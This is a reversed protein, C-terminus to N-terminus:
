FAHVEPQPHAAWDDFNRETSSRVIDLMHNVSTRQASPPSGAFLAPSLSASAARTAQRQPSKYQYSSLLTAGPKPRPSAQSSALPSDARPMSAAQHQPFFAHASSSTSSANRKGRHLLDFDILPRPSSFADGPPSVVSGPGFLRHQMSPPAGGAEREESRPFPISSANSDARGSARPFFSPLNPQPSAPLSAHGGVPAAARPLSASASARRQPPPSAPGGPFLEKRAFIRGLASTDPLLSVNDDLSPWPLPRALDEDGGAARARPAAEPRDFGPRPRAPEDRRHYEAVGLGFADSSEGATVTIAGAAAESGAPRQQQLWGDEFPRAAAPSPPSGYVHPSDILRRAQQQQQQQQLQQEQQQQQQQQQQRQQQQQQQQLQQQQQQQQQRQQQQQQQQLQQQQELHQWGAAARPQADAAGDDSRRRAWRPLDGLPRGGPSPEDEHERRPGGSPRESAVHRQDRDPSRGDEFSDTLGPGSRLPEEEPPRYADGEEACEAVARSDKQSLFPPDSSRWALLEDDDVDSLPTGTYSRPPRGGAASPAAPPPEFLDPEFRDDFFPLDPIHQRPPPKPPSTTLHWRPVPVPQPPPPPPTAKLARAAQTRPKPASRLAPAPQAQPAPQATTLSRTRTPKALRQMRPSLTAPSSTHGRRFAQQQQQIQPPPQQQQQPQVHPTNTTNRLAARGRADELPKTASGSGSCKAAAAPKERDRPGDRAKLKPQGAEPPVGARAAQAELIAELKDRLAATLGYTQAFNAALVRVDDGQHIGIRGCRGAGLNVDVYLLPKQRERKETEFKFPKVETPAGTTAPRAALDHDSSTRLFNEDFRKSVAQRGKVMRQVARNFGKAQQVPTQYIGHPVDHVQPHFTCEDIEKDASPVFTDAGRSRAPKVPVDSRAAYTHIEPQFTCARTEEDLVDTAKKRKSLAAREMELAKRREFDRWASSSTVKKQLDVVVGGGDNKARGVSAQRAPAPSPAPVPNATADRSGAANAGNNGDKGYAHNGGSGPTSQNPKCDSGRRAAHAPVASNPAPSGGGGRHENEHAAGDGRGEGDSAANRGGAAAAPPGPKAAPPPKQAAPKAPSPTRPSPKPHRQGRHADADDVLASSPTGPAATQGHPTPSVDRPLPAATRDPSPLGHVPPRPDDQKTAGPQRDESKGKSHNLLAGVVLVFTEQGIATVKALDRVALAKAEKARMTAWIKDTLRKKDSKVEDQTRGEAALSRFLGMACLCLHLDCYSMLGSGSSNRSFFSLLRADDAPPAPAPTPRPPKRKSPGVPTHPASRPFDLEHQLQALHVQRQRSLKYLREHAPASTSPHLSSSPATSPAEHESGDEESAGTTGATRAGESFAAGGGANIRPTFTMEKNRGSEVRAALQRLRRQKAEIVEDSREQIPRNQQRQAAKTIEPRFTHDCPYVAHM